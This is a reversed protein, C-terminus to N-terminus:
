FIYQSTIHYSLVIGLKAHAAVNGQDAAMELYRFAKDYNIDGGQGILYM